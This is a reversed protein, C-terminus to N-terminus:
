KIRCINWCKYWRKKWNPVQSREIQVSGLVCIGLPIQLSALTWSTHTYFQYKKAATEKILSSIIDVCDEGSAAAPERRAVASEVSEVAASAGVHHDVQRRQGHQGREASPVTEVAQQSARSSVHCLTNVFSNAIVTSM